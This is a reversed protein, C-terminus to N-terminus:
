SPDTPLPTRSPESIIPRSTSETSMDSPSSDGPGQVEVAAETQTVTLSQADTSEMEPLPPPLSQSKLREARRQEIRRKAEAAPLISVEARRLADMMRWAHSKQASAVFSVHGRLEMLRQETLLEPERVTAQHVAARLRRREKRPVGVKDKMVLGCIRMRENRSKIETKDTNITFGFANLLKKARKYVADFLQEKNLVKSSFALDDAYRTYTIGLGKCYETTNKDFGRMVLNSIKPSTAFGQPTYGNYTVSNIIRKFISNFEKDADYGPMFMSKIEECVYPYKGAVKNEYLSPSCRGDQMRSKYICNQCVVKNGFFVNRLMDENITDFFDKLDITLLSMAGVHMQANGVISRGEVFGFAADHERFKNLFKWTIFKHLVRLQRDAITIKRTKGNPKKLELTRIHTNKDELIEDVKDLPRGFMQSSSFLSNDSLTEQLSLRARAEEKSKDYIRTM